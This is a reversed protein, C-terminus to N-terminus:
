LRNTKAQSYEVYSLVNLTIVLQILSLIKVYSCIHSPQGTVTAHFSGWMRSVYNSITRGLPTNLSM